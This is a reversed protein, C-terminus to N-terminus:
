EAEPRDDDQKTCEEQDENEDPLIISFRGDPYLTEATKHLDGFIKNWEPLHEEKSQNNRKYKRYKKPPTRKM